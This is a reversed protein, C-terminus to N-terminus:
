HIRKTDQDRTKIYNLAKPVAFQRNYAEALFPLTDITM